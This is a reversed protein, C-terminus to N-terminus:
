KAGGGYKPPFPLGEISGDFDAEIYDDENM